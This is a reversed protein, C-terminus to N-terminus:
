HERVRRRSKLFALAALGLGVIVFSGPEPTAAAPPTDPGGPIDPGIPIDPVGPTGPQGPTDSGNGGSGPTTPLNSPPRPYPPEGRPGTGPGIEFVSQEPPVEGIISGSSGPRGNEPLGRFGPPGVLETPRDSWPQDAGPPTVPEPTVPVPPEVPTVTGGGPPPITGTGPPFLPIVPIGGGGQQPPIPLVGEVPPAGTVPQLNEFSESLLSPSLPEYFVARPGEPLFAANLEAEPPELSPATEDGPRLVEAIRNGCRARAQSKGDTLVLEGKHLVVKRRTWYIRDHVRYSVHATRDQALVVPIARDVRFDAYHLAAVHDRNLAHRLEVSDGVGGPVVSYPYEVRHVMLPKRQALRFHAAPPEASSEVSSLATMQLTADWTAAVAVAFVAFPILVEGFPKRQSSRHAELGQYRIPLKM